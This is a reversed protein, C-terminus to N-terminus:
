RRPKPYHRYHVWFSFTLANDSVLSELPIGAANIAGLAHAMDASTWEIRIMSVLLNRLNM